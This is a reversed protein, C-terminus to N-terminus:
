VILPVCDGQVVPSKAFTHEDARGAKSSQALLTPPESWLHSFHQAQLLTGGYRRFTASSEAPLVCALQSVGFGTPTVQLPSGGTAQRTMVGPWVILM